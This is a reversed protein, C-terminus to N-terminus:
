GAFVDAFVKPFNRPFGMMVYKSVGRSVKSGFYVNLQRFLLFILLHGSKEFNFKKVHTLM